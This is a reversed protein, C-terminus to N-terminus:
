CTGGNVVRWADVVGVRVVAAFTDVLLVYVVELRAVRGELGKYLGNEVIGFFFDGIEYLL